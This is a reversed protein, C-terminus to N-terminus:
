RLKKIDFRLLVANEQPAHESHCVEGSGSSTSAQITPAHRIKECAADYQFKADDYRHTLTFGLIFYIFHWSLTKLLLM